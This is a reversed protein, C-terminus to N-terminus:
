KDKPASYSVPCTATAQIGPPLKGKHKDSWAKISGVREDPVIRKLGAKIAAEKDIVSYEPARKPQHTYSYLTYPGTWSKRTGGDPVPMAAALVPWYRALFREIRAQARQKHARAVRERSAWRDEEDFLRLLLKDADESTGPEWFPRGDDDPLEEDEDVGLILANALQEITTNHEVRRFSMTRKPKEEVQPEDLGIPGALEIDSM